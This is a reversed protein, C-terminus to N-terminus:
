APGNTQHLPTAKLAAACWGALVTHLGIAPWLGIGSLALGLAAHVLIAVAAVNYFLMAVVLARGDHRALWCAIGLAVLGAGAVRAVTLAVPGDLTGGLLSQALASPAVLLGIGTVAEIAATIVLLKKMITKYDKVPPRLPTSASAAALAQKIPEASPV